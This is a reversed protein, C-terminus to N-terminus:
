SNSEKFCCIETWLYCKQDYEPLFTLSLIKERYLLSELSKMVDKRVKKLMVVVSLVLMDRIVEVMIM